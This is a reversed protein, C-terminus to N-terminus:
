ILALGRELVEELIQLTFMEAVQKFTLKQYSSTKKLVNENEPTFLMQKEKSYFLVEKNSELIKEVTEKNIIFGVKRIEDLLNRRGIIRDLYLIDSAEKLYQNKTFEIDFGHIKIKFSDSTIGLIFQLIFEEVYLISYNKNGKLFLQFRESYVNFVKKNLFPPLEDRVKSYVFVFANTNKLIELLWKQSDIDNVIGYQWDYIVVDPLFMKDIQSLCQEPKTFGVLNLLGEKFPESTIIEKILQQLDHLFRWNENLALHYLNESSIAAEYIGLDVFEKIIPFEDDIIFINKEKIKM